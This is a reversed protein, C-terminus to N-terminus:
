FSSGFIINMEAIIEDILEAEKKGAMGVMKEALRLGRGCV